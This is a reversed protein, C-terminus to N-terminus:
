EEEVIWLDVDYYDAGSKLTKCTLENLQDEHFRELWQYGTAITEDIRIYDNFYKCLAVGLEMKEEEAKLAEILDELDYIKYDQAKTLNKNHYKFYDKIDELIEMQTDTITYKKM